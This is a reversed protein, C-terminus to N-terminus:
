APASVASVLAAVGHLGADAGLEAHRLEHRYLPPLEAMAERLRRLYGERLGVGGGVATREIGLMVTLDALKLVLQRISDRWRADARADGADAADCLSRADGYGHQRAWNSLATGCAHEELTRGDACRTEGLEADLGNRALHLRRDLVLGAGLGTSVTVFLFEDCGRGAGHRFEGWAAARADNLVRVPRGLQVSLTEGLPYRSWGCLLAPNHATVCGDASVQGAIAVGLPAPTDRLPALLQVMTELMAEPGGQGPTPVSARWAIRGSGDFWAARSHTGGVDLAIAESM